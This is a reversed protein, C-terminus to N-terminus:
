HAQQRDSATDHNGSQGAYTGGSTADSQSSLLALALLVILLGAILAPWALWVARRAIKKQREAIQLRGREFQWISRQHEHLLKLDAVIRRHQAEAEAAADRAAQTAARAENLESELRQARVEWEGREQECAVPIDRPSSMMGILEAQEDAPVVAQTGVPAVSREAAPTEQEAKLVAILQLVRSVSKEATGTAPAVTKAGRKGRPRAVKAPAPTEVLAGAEGETNPMM